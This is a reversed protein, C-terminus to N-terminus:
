RGAVCHPFWSRDLVHLPNHGDVVAKTPTYSRTGVRARREGLDDGDVEEAVVGVAATLELHVPDEAAAIEGEASAGAIGSVYIPLASM